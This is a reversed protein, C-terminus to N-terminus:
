DDMEVFTQIMQDIEGSPFIIYFKSNKSLFFSLDPEMDCFEWPRVRGNNSFEWEKERLQDIYMTRGILFIYYYGHENKDLYGYVEILGEAREVAKQFNYSEPVLVDIGLSEFYREKFLEFEEDISDTIILERSRIAEIRRSPLTSIYLELTPKFNREGNLVSELTIKSIIREYIFDEIDIDDFNAITVGFLEENESITKIFDDVSVLHNERMHERWRQMYETSTEGEIKPINYMDEVDEENTQDDSKVEPEIVM